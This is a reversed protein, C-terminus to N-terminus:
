SAMDPKAPEKLLRTVPNLRREWGKDRPYQEKWVNPRGPGSSFDGLDTINVLATNRLFANGTNDLEVLLGPINGSTTNGQIINGTGSLRIGYPNNENAINGRITNSSGSTRPGGMNRGVRKAM